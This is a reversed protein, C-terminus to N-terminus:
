VCKDVQHCHKPDWKQCDEEGVEVDDNVQEVVRQLWCSGISQKIRDATFLRRCRKHRTTPAPTSFHFHHDVAIRPSVSDSTPILVMSRNPFRNTM